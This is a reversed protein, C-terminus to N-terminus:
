AGGRLSCATRVLLPLPLGSMSRTCPKGSAQNEQRCWIAANLHAASHQAASHQATRHQATSRQATGHPATSHQATSHRATSHQASARGPQRRTCRRAPEDQTAFAWRWWHAANPHACRARSSTAAAQKRGDQGSKGAPVLKFHNCDVHPAVILAAGWLHTSRWGSRPGTIPGARHCQATQAQQAQRSGAPRQGTCLVVRQARNCRGHGGQARLAPGRVAQPLQPRIHLRHRAVQQGLRPLLLHPAAAEHTCAAPHTPISAHLPNACTALSSVGPALRRRCRTRVRDGAWRGQKSGKCSTSTPCSQPAWHQQAAACAAGCSKERRAMRHTATWHGVMAHWGHQRALQRALWPAQM